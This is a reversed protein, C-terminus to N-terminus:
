HAVGFSGWEGTAALHEAELSRVLAGPPGQRLWAELRELRDRTGEAVVHVSGDSANRVCGTLGGILQAQRVTAYRFGVGQVIGRVRADLREEPAEPRSARGPV